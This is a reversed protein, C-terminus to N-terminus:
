ETICFPGLLRDQLVSQFAVKFGFCNLLEAGQLYNISIKIFMSIPKENKELM